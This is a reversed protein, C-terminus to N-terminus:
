RSSALVQQVANESRNAMYTRPLQLWHLTMLGGVDVIASETAYRRGSARRPGSEQGILGESTTRSRINKDSGRM